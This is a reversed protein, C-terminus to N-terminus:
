NKIVKKEIQQFDYTQITAGETFKNVKKANQNGKPAGGKSGAIVKTPIKCKDETVRQYMSLSYANESELHKHEEGRFARIMNQVVNGVEEPTMDMLIDHQNEYIIVGYAM